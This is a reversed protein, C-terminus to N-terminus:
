AEAGSSSVILLEAESKNKMTEAMGRHQKQLELRTLKPLYHQTTEQTAKNSLIKLGTLRHPGLWIYM